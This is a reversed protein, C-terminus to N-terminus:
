NGPKKLKRWLSVRDIGLIEAAETKNGGTKDLIFQIYAAEQEQLSPFNGDVKSFGPADPGNVHDPLDQPEIYDGRSLAIGREIINELERINGPFSYHSLRASAQESLGTANKDMLVSYKEIFYQALPLVDSARDRLPPLHFSVVNLRYYLDNRLRGSSVLTDPDRNTTAFFRVDIPIASTGGIRMLEQEQIARLLKVQMALPMETIEDLLLTGGSAMELLGKKLQTAGTFADKEHGFLENSLLDATFAGCNVAIFPGKARGSHNHIYRALLEKGTGSEGTILINCDTGSVQRATDLIKNMAPHQTIIRIKGRYTEIQAKLSRNQKKLRVKETAEKIVKRVEELRYPKAIYYFAGNQMAQVATEPTAYGTVVIVESDPAYQKSHKLVQMGDVQKMKLDTLVVDFSEHEMHEIAEAGSGCSTIQYGERDLVHELNKLAVPEDDVILLRPSNNSM